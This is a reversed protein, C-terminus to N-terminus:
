DVKLLSHNVGLVKRFEEPITFVMLRHSMTYLTSALKDVWKNAYKKGCSPCICSKCVLPITKVAECEPCKCTLFGYAPARCHLMKVEDIVYKFLSSNM